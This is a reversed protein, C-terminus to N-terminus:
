NWGVSDFIKVAETQNDGLATAKMDSAKFDGLGDVVAPAAVGSVVPYEFSGSTLIAQAEETTIWDLFAVAHAPNPAYRAMGAGSINVHAGTGDQDPFVWGINAIGSTLGDVDGALGRAFYYHNSVAIDCEGSVLGRLQDTDGGQPKRAMNDVVGQAWSTAAEAGDREIISALLSQNYINSSSRICIRGKWKPDALEAYTMPPEAVRDKAYFIIRARTAFGFWLDDPHRLAEPIRADITESEVPAFVGAEAARWLRGADVTILVDAPSNEGEARIRALLEDAKAEIRNVTVGTEAEFAAYLADDADYHRASYVNLVGDALATSAALVAILSAIRTM